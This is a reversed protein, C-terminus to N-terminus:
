SSSDVPGHYKSRVADGDRWQWYYYRNGNIEKVTLSAKGPV